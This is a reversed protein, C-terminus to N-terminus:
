GVRVKFCAGVLRSRRKFGVAVRDGFDPMDTRAQRSDTRGHHWAEGLQRLADFHFEGPPPNYRDSGVSAIDRTEDRDFRVFGNEVLYEDPRSRDSGAYALRKEGVGFRRHRAAKGQV